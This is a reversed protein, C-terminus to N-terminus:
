GPVRNRQPGDQRLARRRDTRLAPLRSRGHRPRDDDAYWRQRPRAHCLDPGAARRCVLPGGIMLSYGRELGFLGGSTGVDLYHVGRPELMRARRVDDKYLTNGGDIITDGAQLRTALESVMRETPDGAPVMLWVARPPALAQVLTDLSAAGRAGDAAVERVRDANLDFVTIAHGGRVLRRTMNAGMRGLGIMGLQM